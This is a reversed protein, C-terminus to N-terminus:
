ATKAADKPDSPSRYALVLLALGGFTIAVDAVNFIGTRLSGIGINMFDTVMGNQSVRDILNGVGGALLLAVPVFYELRMNWHIFLYGAVLLLIIGNAFTFVYFRM